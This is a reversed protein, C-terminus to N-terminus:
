WSFNGAASPLIRLIPHYTWFIPLLNYLLCSLTFRLQVSRLQRNGRPRERGEDFRVSPNGTNPEGPENM